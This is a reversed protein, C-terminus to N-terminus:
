MRRVGSRLYRHQLRWQTKIRALLFALYGALGLWDDVLSAEAATLDVDDTAPRVEAAM